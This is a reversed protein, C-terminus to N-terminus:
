SNVSASKTRAEMALKSIMVFGVFPLAIVYALAIFPAAFFLGINKALVGAKKLKDNSVPARKAYAELALKVIHYIGVFPLAIVYALAVFPAAFFMGITKVLKKPAEHINADNVAKFTSVEYAEGPLVQNFSRGVVAEDELVLAKFKTNMIQEM